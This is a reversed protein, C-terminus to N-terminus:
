VVDGGLLRVLIIPSPQPLLSLGARLPIVGYSSSTPLLRKKLSNKLSVLGLPIRWSCGTVFYSKQSTTHTSQPLCSNPSKNYVIFYDKLLIIESSFQFSNNSSYKKPVYSAAELFQQQQFFFGNYINYLGVVSQLYTRLQKNLANIFVLSDVNRGVTTELKHPSFSGWFLSRVVSLLKWSM